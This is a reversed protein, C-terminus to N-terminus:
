YSNTNKILGGTEMQRKYVDKFQPTKLIRGSGTTLRKYEQSKESIEQMMATGDEFTYFHLSFDKLSVFDKKISIIKGNHNVYIRDKEPELGRITELVPKQLIDEM